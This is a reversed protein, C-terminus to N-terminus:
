VPLDQLCEEAANASSDCDAAEEEDSSCAPLMASAMFALLLAAITKKRLEFITM